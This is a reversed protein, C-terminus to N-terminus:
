LAKIPVASTVLTSGLLWSLAMLVNRLIKYSLRSLNTERYFTKKSQSQVFLLVKSEM